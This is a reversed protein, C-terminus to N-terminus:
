RTSLSPSQGISSSRTSTFLADCDSQDQTTSVAASASDEGSDTENCLPIFSGGVSASGFTAWASTTAHAPAAVLSFLALPILLRFPLM